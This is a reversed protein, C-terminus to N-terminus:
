PSHLEVIRGLNAFAFSWSLIKDVIHQLPRKQPGKKKAPGTGAENYM